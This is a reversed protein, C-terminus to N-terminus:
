YFTAASLSGARIYLILGSLVTVWGSILLRLPLKRTQVLQNMMPAGGPGLARVSPLIFWAVLMVGGVWFIAAMIHLLRLVYLLALSSMSGRRSPSTGQRKDLYM